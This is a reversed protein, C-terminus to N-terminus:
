AAEQMKRFEPLLVERARRLIKAEIQRVRERTIGLDNGIEQLTREGRGDLDFRQIIIQRERNSDAVALLKSVVLMLHTDEFIAKANVGHDDLGMILDLEADGTGVGKRYISVTVSPVDYWSDHAKWVEKHLNRHGRLMFGWICKVAFPSFRFGRSSDFRELAHILGLTGESILDDFELTGRHTLHKMRKAMMYVLGMNSEIDAQRVPPM